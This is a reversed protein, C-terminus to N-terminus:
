NAQFVLSYETRAGVKDGLVHLKCFRMGDVTPIPFDSDEMEQMRNGVAPDQIVFFGSKRLSEEADELSFSAFSDESSLETPAM